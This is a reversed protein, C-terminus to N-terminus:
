QAAADQVILAQGAFLYGSVDAANKRKRDAAANEEDVASGPAGYAAQQRM